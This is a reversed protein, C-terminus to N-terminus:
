FQPLLTTTLPQLKFPTDPQDLDFYPFDCIDTPSQPHTLASLLSGPPPEQPPPTTPYETPPVQRPDTFDNFEQQVDEGLEAEWKDIYTALAKALQPNAKVRELLKGVDFDAFDTVHGGLDNEVLGVDKYVEEPGIVAEEKEDVEKDRAATTNPVLEVVPIDTV